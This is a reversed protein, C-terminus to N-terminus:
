GRQSQSQNINGGGYASGAEFAPIRAPWYLNNRFCNEGQGDIRSPIVSPQEAAQIGGLDNLGVPPCINGDQKGKPSALYEAGPLNFKYKIM